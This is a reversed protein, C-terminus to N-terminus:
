RDGHGDGRGHGTGDHLRADRPQGVLLEIDTLVVTAFGSLEATLSYTGPPVSQVRYLGSGDTVAVLTLGTSPDVATVTVGPLVLGSEDEVTGVITAQQAHVGTVASLSVLLVAACTRHSM